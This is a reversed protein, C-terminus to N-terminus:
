SAKRSASTKVGNTYGSKKVTVRVRIKKGKDKKTLKYTSKTAGKINSSGRQWQYSYTSPAPSWTGKGATLKKGVKMTGGVKPAKSAEIGPQM